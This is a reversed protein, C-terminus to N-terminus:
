ATAPRRRSAVGAIAAAGAAGIGFILLAPKLGGTLETLAVAILPAMFQALFFTGTWLGTGRGRAAPPLVQMVWTLLTPLLIGGGVCSIVAFMAVIWFGSSQSVGVFGIAALAFGAALLLTRNQQAGRRFILAGIVVGFNAAAGAGGIAAPSTVGVIEMIPGIQILMTYFLLAAGLTIAVIPLVRAFPFLTQQATTRTAPPEFLIIASFLGIPLALLYLLFPGRSGLMEGLIGGAAILVIASLSVVATQIAIWRERREGDYYDGILTTAVTTIAAEMLGLLVRSVVIWTLSTLYLPMLGILGYLMLATVQVWKRGVRDSLWGAAPSFIAVCLAPITLAIPVLLAAGPVAAFERLLLPLVPVLSIIAMAPMVAAAMLVVGHRTTAQRASAPHTTTITM